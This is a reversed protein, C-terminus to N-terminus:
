GNPEELEELTIEIPWVELFPCFHVIIGHGNIANWTDYCRDCGHCHTGSQNLWYDSGLKRFIMTGFPKGLRSQLFFDGPELKEFKIPEKVTIM